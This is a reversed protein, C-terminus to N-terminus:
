AGPGAAIDMGKALFQRYKDSAKLPDPTVAVLIVACAAMTGTVGEPAAVDDLDKPAISKGSMYAAVGVFSAPSNLGAQQAAAFAAYRNDDTPDRVWREALSLVQANNADLEPTGARTSAAAWWVAERSPLAHALFNTADAFHEGEILRALFQEPTLGEPSIAQADESLEFRECVAAPPRGSIKILRRDTM